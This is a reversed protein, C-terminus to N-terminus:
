STATRLRAAIGASAGRDMQLAAAAFVSVVTWFLYRFDAAPAVLLYALAYILGSASVWFATTGRGHRRWSTVCLLLGAAVWVWGRFPLANRTYEQVARLARYTRKRKHVHFGWPNPDTGIQYPFHVVGNVALLRGFRILRNRLYVIPYRRVVSRWEAILEARRPPLLDLRMRHPGAPGYFLFASSSPDYIDKLDELSVQEALMSQPFAEPVDVYIGALDYSLIWGATWNDTAGLANELVRPSAVALAGCAVVALGQRVRSRGLAPVLETAAVILPLTATIANLRFTSALVCLVLAAGGRGARLAVAAWTLTAALAVDKWIAVATSWVPPLWLFAALLCAAMWGRAAHRVLVAMGVGLSLLQLLFIPWPSGVVKVCLGLLMSLLPPATNSYTGTLGQTLQDISDASLLGPSFATGIVYAWSGVLGVLVATWVPVVASGSQREHDARQLVAV